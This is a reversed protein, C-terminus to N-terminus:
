TAEKEFPTSPSGTDTLEFLSYLNETTCGGGLGGAGGDGGGAGGTGREGM